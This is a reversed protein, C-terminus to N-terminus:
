SSENYSSSTTMLHIRDISGAKPLQDAKMRRKAQHCPPCSRLYRTTAKLESSPPLCETDYQDLEPQEQSLYCRPRIRSPFCKAHALMSNDRQWWRVYSMHVTASCRYSQLLENHYPLIDVHNNVCVWVWWVKLLVNIIAHCRLKQAVFM